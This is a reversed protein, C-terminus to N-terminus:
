AAQPFELHIGRKAYQDRVDELYKSFQPKTMLSTVPFWDMLELKEDYTFRDRVLADYKARFEADEARLIPVGYHLKCFRRHEKADHQRDERAMQAYWAHSISNQDISRDKGARVDIRLYKHVRWLERIEGISSQLATESNAIFESVEAAGKGL